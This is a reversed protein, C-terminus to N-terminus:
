VQLLSKKEKGTGVELLSEKDEGGKRRRRRCRICICVIWCVVVSMIGLILLLLIKFIIPLPRLTGCLRDILEIFANNNNSGMWDCKPTTLNTLKEAVGEEYGSTSPIDGYFDNEKSASDNDDGKDNVVWFQPPLETPASEISAKVFSTSPRSVGDGELVNAYQSATATSSKNSLLTTSMDVDTKNQYDSQGLELPTTDVTLPRPSTVVGARDTQSTNRNSVTNIVSTTNMSLQTLNSKAETGGIQFALTVNEQEVTRNRGDTDVIEHENSENKPHDDQLSSSNDGAPQEMVSNIQETSNQQPDQGQGDNKLQDQLGQHEQYDRFIALAEKLSMNPDLFPLSQSMVTEVNSTSLQTASDISGDDNQVNIAPSVTESQSLATIGDGEVDLSSIDTVTVEEYVVTTAIEFGNDSGDDNVTQDDIPKDPNTQNTEPIIDADPEKQDHMVESLKSFIDIWADPSITDNKIGEPIKVEDSLQAAIDTIICVYLLGVLLVKM